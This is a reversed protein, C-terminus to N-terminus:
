LVLFRAEIETEHLFIKAICHLCALKTASFYNRDLCYSFTVLNMCVEIALEFQFQLLIDFTEQFQWGLDWSGFFYYGLLVSDICIGM